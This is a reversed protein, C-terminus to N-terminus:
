GLRAGDAAETWRRYRAQRSSCTPSASSVATPGPLGRGLLRAPMALQSCGRASVKLHGDSTHGYGITWPEGNKSGPDPYATLKLGEWRKVHQLTEGNITRAM